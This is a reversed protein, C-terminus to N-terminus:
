WKKTNTALLLEKWKMLILSVMLIAQEEQPHCNFNMLLPDRTLM